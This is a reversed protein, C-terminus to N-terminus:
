LVGELWRYLLVVPVIELACLYLFMYFNLVDKKYSFVMGRIVRLLFIGSLALICTWILIDQLIGSTYVMLFVLPLAVLGALKNFVFMNYLYERIIKVRNFLFGTLNHLIVRCFFILALLALNFMFLLIGQLNYPILGTRLEMYYVLFALSLFYFLYLTGDLQKQLLSNSYFMRYTLNFNTSAQFTQVLINGYYLSIWAYIGLLIFLYIFYWAPEHIQNKEAFHLSVFTPGTYPNLGPLSSLSFLISDQSVM